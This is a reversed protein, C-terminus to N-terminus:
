FGVNLSVTFQRPVPMAVGGSSFFEPDQGNLRKDSHLLALNSGIVKLSVNNVGIPAIWASPLDYTLSVEKLRIFDGKVVRIDSYNYSNYARTLGSMNNNLRISPIVPIDTFAEDGPLMWRDNLEKPMAAMDTYSSNLAPNLRIKNGFQYTFFVSLKLGKYKFSNNLGGVIKPDVSGEYKLYNVDSGQFNIGTITTSGDNNAFTPLGDGNLGRFPISFLGRVPYNLLPGGNESVLGIVQPVSELKTIKNTNYSFTLDTNWTFSNTLINKTNLSFEVGHSKMDAYNAAKMSEGGIGSTRVFGILDFGNRKYVDMSLSIRNNLLGLDVGFNMEYQKEWTLSSNELSALIIQTERENQFPRFAIENQFVALANSAPGMSATLGYTGRMSLASIVKVNEMFGENFVNWGGSVNWTPLWRASKSSGLRNSGDYRGTLNVTYREDFSYGLTTFFAVFRDFDESMGYYQFGGDLMQQLIRYDVFPIGGREWQYGYGNSFSNTRNTYKMETGVLVNVNHLDTFLENYNAIGRFYYNLLNKDDRNYFGGKPMVVEPQASPNEPDQWLFDNNDRIYADGAARYAMAMNSNDGIKHEQTTKVYRLAGLARLSLGRMPKVELEAQLKTDLVDLEIKNNELENAINFPAYNMSYFEREGNEKHMSMTRSTNLAYSFPNIDFNRSYGGEVVNVTRNLAGPVTQKRYSNTTVVNLKVYKSIDVTANMNATFREVKDAISWGPDNFYSLSAYYQAKDSGSTLSVSHTQQVSNNFLENFWDTNAYEAKRLFEAKAEPTNQLGFQGSTRDYENILEYMKGFIGSNSRRAVDAHNLLGKSEMDLYVRMQEQSNMINHEKYSPQMRVTFQGSYDVRVVGKKGKKTTVVVVGNMARAGYLATASADKLVQFSEIDEANVGAIASSILTNINGSSLDDADIEVVDELVVGDVVWLPKSNGYISSAGRVRIKPSAGFTGSVNQVQVGVAKGQLMRSVDAEGGLKVDEAKVISAAGTFLKRDIKQYGTVVVEEITQADEQMVIKNLPASASIEVTKYGVFSIVLKATKDPVMLTFVGDMDTSVGTTTGKIQVTAGPMPQGNGDFVRGKLEVMKQQPSAAPDQFLIITKDKIRYTLGSGKLVENLIAEISAGKLNVSIDKMERAAEERYFFTFDSQKKVQEVLESFEGNKLTVDMFVEQSYVSAHASYLGLFLFFTTVKMMRLFIKRVDRLHPGFESNKKM